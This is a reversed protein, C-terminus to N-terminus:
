KSSGTRPPFLVRSLSPSIRSFYIFDSWHSATRSNPSLLLFFVRKVVLVDVEPPWFTSFLSKHKEDVRALSARPPFHFIEIKAIYFYFFKGGVLKLLRLFNRRLFGFRTWPFAFTGAFSGGAQQKHTHKHPAKTIDIKKEKKRITYLMFPLSPFNKKTSVSSYLFQATGIPAKTQKGM